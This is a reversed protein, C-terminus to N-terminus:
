KVEEITIEKIVCDHMLNTEASKSLIEIETYVSIAYSNSIVFCSHLLKIYELSNKFILLEAFEPFSNELSNTLGM